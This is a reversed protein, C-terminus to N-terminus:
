AHAAPPSSVVQPHDARQEPVRAGGRRRLLVALQDHERALRRTETALAAVATEAAELRARLVIIEDSSVCVHARRRLLLGLFARM